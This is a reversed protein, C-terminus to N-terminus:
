DTGPLASILRKITSAFGYPLGAFATILAIWIWQVPPESYIFHFTIFMLMFLGFSNFTLTPIIIWLQVNRTLGDQGTSMNSQTQYKAIEIRNNGRKIKSEITM